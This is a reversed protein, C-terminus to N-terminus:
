VCAASSRSSRRFASGVSSHASACGFLNVAAWRPAQSPSTCAISAARSATSGDSGSSYHIASRDAIRGQDTAQAVILAGSGHQDDAPGVETLPGTFGNDQ